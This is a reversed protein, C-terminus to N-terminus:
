VSVDVLVLKNTTAVLYKEGDTATYVRHHHKVKHCREAVINTNGVAIKLQTALLGLLVFLPYLGLSCAKAYGVVVLTEVGFGLHLARALRYLHSGASQAVLPEVFETCLIAVM